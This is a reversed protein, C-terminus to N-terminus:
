SVFVGALVPAETPTEQVGINMIQGTGSLLVKQLQLVLATLTTDNSNKQLLMMCAYLYWTQM